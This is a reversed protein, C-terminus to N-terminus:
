RFTSCAVRTLSTTGAIAPHCCRVAEDMPFRTVPRASAIGANGGIHTALIKAPSSSPSPADGCCSKAPSSYPSLTLEGADTLRGM